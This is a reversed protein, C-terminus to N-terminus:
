ARRGHSRGHGTEHRWELSIQHLLPQLNPVAIAALIGIIAVGIVLDVVTVGHANRLRRVDNRSVEMEWRKGILGMPLAMGGTRM